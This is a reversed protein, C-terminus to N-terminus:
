LSAVMNKLRLLGRPELCYCVHPPSIEGRILGAEKLIKLHQSVTSQALTFEDVLEGCVCSEREALLSLIRLRAPHAIARALSALEEEAEQGELLEEELPAPPPCLEPPCGGDSETNGSGRVRM